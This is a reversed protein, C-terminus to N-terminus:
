DEDIISIADNIDNSIIFYNTLKTLEIVRRVTGTIGTLCIRVDKTKKATSFIYILTGIGSSDIYDTESLDLIFKKVNKEVMKIFLEKVKFSQYLDFDGTTSIIYIDKTKKLKLEM